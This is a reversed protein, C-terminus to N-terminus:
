DKILTFNGDSFSIIDGSTINMGRFDFFGKITLAKNTEAYETIVLAGDVSEYFDGQNGMYSIKPVKANASILHTKTESGEFELVLSTGQNTQLTIIRQNGNLQFKGNNFEMQVTQKRVVGIARYTEEDNNCAVLAWMLVFFLLYKKM